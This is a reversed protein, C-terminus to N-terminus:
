WGYKVAVEYLERINGTKDYALLPELASALEFDPSEMDQRPANSIPSTNRGDGFPLGSTVPESPRETPAFLPTVAPGRRVPQAEVQPTPAPNGAMPAGQQQEMVQKSEGYKGTRIEKMAQKSGAGGDTRRSLKGPGSV